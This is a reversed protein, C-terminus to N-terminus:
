ELESPIGPFRLFDWLVEKGEQTQVRQDSPNRTTDPPAVKSKEVKKTGLRTTAPTETPDELSKLDKGLSDRKSGLSIRKEERKKEAEEGTRDCGGM